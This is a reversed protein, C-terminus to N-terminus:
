LHSPMQFDCMLIEVESAFSGALCQSGEQELSVLFENESIPCLLIM